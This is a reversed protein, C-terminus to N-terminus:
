DNSAASGGLFEALLSAVEEPSDEQLFHGADALATVQAQPLREAVRGMTTAVDYLVRDRAGYIIRVPGEFNALAPAVLAFGDLNGHGAALLARRDSKDRCPDQYLAAVEPTICAKDVVGVQMAWRIGRASSIVSRVGPTRTLLVFAKVAWNVDPYVLTNLLAIETVRECNRAMWHLGIPGGLDHVVLGVQDVDIANLFETLVSEYYRLSYDVDPKDSRGFAPLDLAIARRGSAAVAPLIQRWLEANAPWGHVFLVPKGTGAELYSIETGGAMVFKRKM